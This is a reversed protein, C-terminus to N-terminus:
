VYRMVVSEEHARFGEYRALLQVARLVDKDISAADELIAIPKLFDYITLAGRVRAWRNTPLIHNPGIYDILAPPSFNLSIAGANEILSMYETSNSIHLALHEPALENAIRLAEEISNALYIHFTNRHNKLLEEVANAVRRSITILIVPSDLGHEAQAIMDAVILKPDASDDAIVVLETPGEVGDIEVVGRVLFKAAQVYINGPGVIKSVKKVSETGYAMAAIIQPGGVRYLNSVGIIRAAHIIAPDICGGKNPPSAVYISKVGAAQAPVGAMLVTSPYPHRGGPAYIGVADIARWVIGLKVGMLNIFLDGPKVSKYFRHLFEYLVDIAMRVDRNLTELCREAKAAPLEISDLEVGDFKRTYDILAKDGYRKVDEVISRVYDLVRYLGLDTPQPLGKVITM